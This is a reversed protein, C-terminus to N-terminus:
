KIWTLITSGKHQKIELTFLDLGVNKSCDVSPTLLAGSYVCPDDCEACPAHCDECAFTIHIADRRGPICESEIEGTQVNGISNIHTIRGDKDEDKRSYVIVDEHHLCYGGCEPCLLIFDGEQSIEILEIRDTEKSM